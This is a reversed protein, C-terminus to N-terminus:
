LAHQVEQLKVKIRDYMEEKETMQKKEIELSADNPTTIIFDFDNSTLVTQMKIM